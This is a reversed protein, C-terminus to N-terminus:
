RRGVYITLLKLQAHTLHASLLPLLADGIAGYCEALCLVGTKRSDALPSRLAHLLGGLVPSPAAAAGAAVAAGSVAQGSPSSPSSAATSPSSAAPPAHLVALLAASTLYPVLARLVRVAAREAEPSGCTMHPTLLAVCALARGGGGGGGGGGRGSGGSPIDLAATATLLDTLTAHAAHSAEAPLPLRNGDLGLGLLRRTVLQTVCVRLWSPVCWAGCRLPNHSLFVSVPCPLPFPRSLPSACTATYQALLCSTHVRTSTRAPNRRNLRVDLYGDFSAPHTVALARLCALAGHTVSVLGLSCSGSAVAESSSSSSAASTSRHLPSVSASADATLLQPQKPQPQLPPQATAATHLCELLLLLSPGFDRAADLRKAVVVRALERLAAAKAECAADGADVAGAETAAGSSAHAETPFPSTGIARLLAQVDVPAAGSMGEGAGSGGGSDGGGGGGGGPSETSLVPQAPSSRPLRPSRGSGGSRPTAGRPAPSPASASNSRLRVPSPTPQVAGPSPQHLPSGGVSSPSLLSPSLLSPSAARAAGKPASLPARQSGCRTMKGMRGDGGDNGGSAWASALAPVSAVLPALIDKLAHEQELPLGSRVQSPLPLSLRPVRLVPCLPQELNNWEARFREKESRGATGLGDASDKVEGGM